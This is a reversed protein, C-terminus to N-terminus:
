ADRGGKGRRTRPAADRELDRLVTRVAEWLLPEVRLLTTERGSAGVELAYESADTDSAFVRRSVCSLTGDPMKMVVLYM